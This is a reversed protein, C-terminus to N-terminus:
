PAMPTELTKFAITFLLGHLTVAGWEFPEVSFTAPQDNTMIITDITGNLTPDGHLRQMYEFAIADSQQYALKLNDRTFLFDVGATMILKTSTANQAIGNGSVLHAISFPLPEANEVPYDPASKITVSSCARALAQLRAIAGDVSNPTPVIPM